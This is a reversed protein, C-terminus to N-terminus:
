HDLSSIFKHTKRLRYQRRGKSTIHFIGMTKNDGSCIQWKYLPSITETIQCLGMLDFLSTPRLWLYPFLLAYINYGTRLVWAIKVTFSLLWPKVFKCVLIIIKINLFSTQGELGDTYEDLHSFVNFGRLWIKFKFKFNLAYISIWLDWGTRKVTILFDFSSDFLFFTSIEQTWSTWPASPFGNYSM